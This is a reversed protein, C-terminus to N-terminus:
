HKKAERLEVVNGGANGYMKEDLNNTPIAPIPLVLQVTYFFSNGYLTQCNDTSHYALIKDSALITICQM